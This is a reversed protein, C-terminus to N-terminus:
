STQMTKEVQVNTFHIKRNLHCRYSMSQYLILQHNKSSPQPPVWVKGKTIYVKINGITTVTNDKAKSQILGHLSEDLDQEERIKDVSLSFNLNNTCDLENIAYIKNVILM